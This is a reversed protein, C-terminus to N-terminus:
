RWLTVFHGFERDFVKVLGDYDGMMMVQRIAAVRNHSYGLQYGLVEAWKMLVWANGDPGTLDIELRAPTPKENKPRIM